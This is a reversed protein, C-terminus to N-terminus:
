AKKLLVNDLFNGIPLKGRDLEKTIMDTIELSAAEISHFTLFEYQSIYYNYLLEDENM